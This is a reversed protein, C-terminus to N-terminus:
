ESRGSDAHSNPDADPDSFGPVYDARSVLRAGPIRRGSREVASALRFTVPRSRDSLAIGEAMLAMLDRAFSRRGHDSQLSRESGDSVVGCLAKQLYLYLTVGDPTRAIRDIALKLDDDSVESM